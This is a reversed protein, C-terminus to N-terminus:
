GSQTGAGVWSVSRGVAHSLMVLIRPCMSAAVLVILRPWVLFWGVLRSPMVMVVPVSHRVAPPCILVVGALRVTARRNPPSVLGGSTRLLPGMGSLLWGRGMAGSAWSCRFLARPRSIALRSVASMPLWRLRAHGLGGPPSALWAWCVHCGRWCCVMCLRHAVGCHLLRSCGWRM